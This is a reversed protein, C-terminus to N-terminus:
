LKDALCVCPSSRRDLVQALYPMVEPPVPQQGKMWNDVSTRSVGTSRSCDPGSNYGADTLARALAPAGMIGKDEAFERLVKGFGTLPRRNRGM